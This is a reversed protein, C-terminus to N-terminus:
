LAQSSTSQALLYRQSANIDKGRQKHPGLSCTQSGTSVLFLSAPIQPTFPLSVWSQLPKVGNRGTETSTFCSQVKVDGTSEQLYQTMLPYIVLTLLNTRSLKLNRERTCYKGPCATLCSGLGMEKQQVVRRQFNAIGVMQSPRTGQGHGTEVKDRGKTHDVPMTKTSLVALINQAGGEWYKRRAEM